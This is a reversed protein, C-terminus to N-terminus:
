IIGLHGKRKNIAEALEEVNGIRVHKNNATLRELHSLDIQKSLKSIRSMSADRMHDKRRRQNELRKIAPMVWAENVHKDFENNRIASFLGKHRETEKATMVSEGKSLKADISDSTGTGNGKLDIVGKAFKPIPRSIVIAAQVAGTALAFAMLFPNPAAKVVAVATNLAILFLANQKDALAQQRKIASEKRAQQIQLRNVQANYKAETIVGEDRQRQLNAIKLDTESRAANIEENRAETQRNFIENIVDTGSQVAFDGLAKINDKKKKQADEFSKLDGAHLKKRRDFNATEIDITEKGANKEILIINDYFAIEAELKKRDIDKQDAGEAAGQKDIALLKRKLQVQLAAAEMDAAAKANKIREENAEQEAKATDLAYKQKLKAIELDIGATAKKYANQDLLNQEYFDEYIKRQESLLTLQIDLTEKALAQEDSIANIADAERASEITKIAEVREAIDKDILSSRIAAFKEEAIEAKGSLEILQTAANAQAQAADDNISRLGEQAKIQAQYLKLIEDANKAYKIQDVIAKVTNYQTLRDSNISKLKLANVQALNEYYKNQLAFNKTLNQNELAFATSVINLREGIDLGKNRTQKLLAAIALETQRTEVGLGRMEDQVADLQISLRYAEDYAEGIDNALGTKGFLKGLLSVINLYGALDNFTEVLGKGEENSGSLGDILSNGFQSLRGTIVDIAAGVGDMTAQLRTAGEDTQRFFSVISSVAVVILGLTGLIGVKLTNALVKAAGSAKNAAPAIGGMAVSASRANNAVNELDNVLGGIPLNNLSNRIASSLDKFSGKVNEASKKASGEVRKFGKESESMGKKLDALDAEYKIIEIETAM